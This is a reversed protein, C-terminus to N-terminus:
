QFTSEGFVGTGFKQLAAKRAQNAADQIAAAAAIAAAREIAVKNDTTTSTFIDAVGGIILTTNVATDDSSSSTHKVQVTQGNTVTGAASTFSGSGIQYTGGTISIAAAANIGAVTIAASTIETSKAVDTQDTFTFTSPTTDAATTTSVSEGGGGYGGGGGGCATLILSSMVVCWMGDTKMVQGGLEM